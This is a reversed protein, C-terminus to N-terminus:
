LSVVCNGNIVNLVCGDGATVNLSCCSGDFKHTEVITDCNVPSNASLPFNEVRVQDDVQADTLPGFICATVFLITCIKRMM